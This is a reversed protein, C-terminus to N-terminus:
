RVVCILTTASRGLSPVEALDVLIGTSPRSDTKWRRRAFQGVRKLSAIAANEVLECLSASKVCATLESRNIDM